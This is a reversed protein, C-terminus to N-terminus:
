GFVRAARFTIWACAFHLLALYNDLQKEWRILLARFRNMWSHTREVVWRRARYGPLPQQGHFDEGTPPIHATYGWHDLLTRVEAYAYGKDLCIHQPNERTPEPRAIAFNYLTDAVLKMDPRNAGAVTLALPIGHPIAKWQCGTRLRYFIADLVPRRDTPPRGGKPKPPDAPLLALVMRWVVDPVRWESGIEKAKTM